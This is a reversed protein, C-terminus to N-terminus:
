NHKFCFFLSLQIIYEGFYFTSMKQKALLDSNDPAYRVHHIWRPGTEGNESLRALVAPLRADQFRRAQHPIVLSPDHEELRFFFFLLFFVASDVFFFFFFIQFVRDAATATAAAAVVTREVFSAVLCEESARELPHWDILIRSAAASRTQRRWGERQAGGIAAVMSRDRPRAVDFELFVIFTGPLGNREISTRRRSWWRRLFELDGAGVLDSTYMRRFIPLLSFAECMGNVHIWMRIIPSNYLIQQVGSHHWSCGVRKSHTNQHRSTAWAARLLSVIGGIANPWFCFLFTPLSFLWVAFVFEM